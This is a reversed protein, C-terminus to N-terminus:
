IIRVIILTSLYFVEREKQRQIALSLYKVVKGHLCVSLSPRLNSVEMSCGEEACHWLGCVSRCPHLYAAFLQCCFLFACFKQIYNIDEALTLIKSNRGELMHKNRIWDKREVETKPCNGSPPWGCRRWLDQHHIIFRKNSLARVKDM